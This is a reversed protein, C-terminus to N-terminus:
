RRRGEYERKRTLYLERCCRVDDVKAIEVLDEVTLLLIDTSTDLLGEEVLVTGTHRLLDVLRTSIVYHWSRDDLVPTWFYAWALIRDLRELTAPDCHAAKSRLIAEQAKREAIGKELVEVADQAQGLLATKIVFLM